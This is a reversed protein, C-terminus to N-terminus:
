ATRLPRRRALALSVGVFIMLIGDPEPVFVLSQIEGEVRLSDGRLEFGGGGFDALALSLPLSDDSLLDTQHTSLDIGMLNVPIGEWVFPQAFVTYKQGGIAFSQYLIQIDFGSAEAVSDGVEVTLPNEFEYYGEGSGAVTDSASDPDYTYSGSFPAGVTISPDLQGLSDEVITLEGAFSVGIPPATAPLIMSTVYFIMIINM